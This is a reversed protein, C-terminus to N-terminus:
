PSYHYGQVGQMHRLRQFQKTNYKECNQEYEKRVDGAEKRLETQQTYQEFDKERQCPKWLEEIKGVEQM